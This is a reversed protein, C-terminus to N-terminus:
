DPDVLKFKSLVEKTLDGSKFKAAQTVIGRKLEFAEQYKRPEVKFRESIMKQFRSRRLLSSLSKTAILYDASLHESSKPDMNM